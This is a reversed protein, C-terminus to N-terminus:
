QVAPVTNIHQDSSCNEHEVTLYVVVSQNDAKDAQTAGKTEKKYKMGPPSNFMM